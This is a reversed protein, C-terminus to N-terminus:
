RMAIVKAGTVEVLQDPVCKFTTDSTGAAAWVDVHDLLVEDLFTAIPQAHGLPPIGGIAYGTVARVWTPQAREIEEGIQEAVRDENVRNSGSVLLLIPRGSEVGRFVLSKVIQSVDCGCAAAAEVATHARTAQTIIEVTLGMAAAAHRFRDPASRNARANHTM